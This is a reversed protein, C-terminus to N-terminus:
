ATRGYKPGNACLYRVFRPRRHAMGLLDLYTTACDIPTRHAPGVGDSGATDSVSPSPTPGDPRGTPLTRGSRAPLRHGTRPASPELCRRCSRGSASGAPQDHSPTGSSAPLSLPGRLLTTRPPAGVPSAIAEEPGWVISYGARHLLNPGRRGSCDITESHLKPPITVLHYRYLIVAFDNGLSM